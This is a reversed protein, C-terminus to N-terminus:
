EGEIFEVDTMIVNAMCDILRREADTQATKQIEQLTTTVKLLYEVRIEDPEVPRQEEPSSGTDIGGNKVIDIAKEYASIEGQYISASVGCMGNIVEAHASSSDLLKNELEAVVKDVDYAVPETSLAGCLAIAIQKEELTNANTNIRTMLSDADILRM